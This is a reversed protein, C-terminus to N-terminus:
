RNPQAPPGTTALYQDDFNKGAEESRRNRGTVRRAFFPREASAARKMLSNAEASLPTTANAVEDPRSIDTTFACHSVPAGEGLRQDLFHAVAATIEEAGWSKRKQGGL